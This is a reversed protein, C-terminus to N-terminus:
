KLCEAKEANRTLIRVQQGQQLLSRAVGGVQQGTAGVVFFKKLQTAM